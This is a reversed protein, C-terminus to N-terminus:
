LPPLLILTLPGRALLVTALPTSISPFPSASMPMSARSLVTTSISFSVVFLPKRSSFTCSVHLKSQLTPCPLLTMRTYGHIRFGVLSFQFPTNIVGSLLGHQAVYSNEVDHFLHTLVFNFLYPSLPCGQRLGRTQSFIESANGADRVRSKPSHDLSMGSNIFPPPFGFHSRVSEM